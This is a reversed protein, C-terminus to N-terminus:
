VRWNEAAKVAKLVAEMFDEGTRFKKHNIIYDKGALINIREALMRKDSDEITTVDVVNAMGVTRRHLTETPFALLDHCPHNGAPSEEGSGCLEEPPM